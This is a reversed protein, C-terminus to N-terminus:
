RQSLESALGVSGAQRLPAGCPRHNQADCGAVPQHRHPLACRDRRRLFRMARRAKRRWGNKKVLCHGAQVVLVNIKELLEPTLLSVNDRLTQLPYKTDDLYPVHGLMERIKLHNDAMEKVKDYNWECNLKVTGLVLVRWLDMGPRGVAESRGAPMAEELLAFVRTRLELDCYIHQLGMLLQPIEDRSRPDFEIRSVDVEGLKMQEDIVKRM